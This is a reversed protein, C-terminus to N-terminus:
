GHCVSQIGVLLKHYAVADKSEGHNKYNDDKDVHAHPQLLPFSPSRLKMSVYVMVSVFPNAPSEVEMNMLSLRSTFRVMASSGKVM